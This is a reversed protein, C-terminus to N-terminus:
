YSRLNAGLDQNLKDLMQKQLREVAEDTLTEKSSQYTIHL